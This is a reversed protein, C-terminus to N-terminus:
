RWPTEQDFEVYTKNWLEAVPSIQDLSSFRTQLNQPLQTQNTPNKQNIQNTTKEFKHVSECEGPCWRM